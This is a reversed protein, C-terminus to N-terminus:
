RREGGGMEVSGGREIELDLESAIWLREEMRLLGRRREYLLSRPLKNSPRPIM